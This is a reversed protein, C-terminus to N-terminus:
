TFLTAIFGIVATWKMAPHKIGTAIGFDDKFFLDPVIWLLEIFFIKAQGLDGFDFTITAKNETAKTSIHQLKILM